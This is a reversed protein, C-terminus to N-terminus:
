KKSGFFLDFFNEGADNDTKRKKKANEETQIEEALGLMIEKFFGKQEGYKPDTLLEKATPLKEAM